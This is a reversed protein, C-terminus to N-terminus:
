RLTDWVSYVVLRSTHISPVSFILRRRRKLGVGGKKSSCTRTPDRWWASYAKTLPFRLLHTAEKFTSLDSTMETKTPLLVKSPFHVQSTSNSQICASSHICCRWWFSHSRPFLRNQRGRFLAGPARVEMQTGQCLHRLKRLIMAVNIPFRVFHQLIKWIQASNLLFIISPKKSRDSLEAKSDGCADWCVSM